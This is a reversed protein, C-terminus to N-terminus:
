AIMNIQWPVSDNISFYDAYNDRIKSARESYKNSGQRALPLTATLLIRWAGPIVQGKELGEVDDVLGPIIYTSSSTKRLWNHLATTTEVILTAKEPSLAIPREFIGM